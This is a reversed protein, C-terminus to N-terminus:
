SLSRLVEIYKEGTLNFLLDHIRICEKCADYAKKNWYIASDIDGAEMADNTRRECDEWYEDYIDLKMKLYKILINNM